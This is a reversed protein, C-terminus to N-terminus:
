WNAVANGYTGSTWKWLDDAESRSLIRTGRMSSAPPEEDCAKM